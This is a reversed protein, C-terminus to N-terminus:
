ARLRAALRLLRCCLTLVTGSCAFGPRTANYRWKVLLGAKHWFRKKEVCSFVIRVITAAVSLQRHWFHWLFLIAM